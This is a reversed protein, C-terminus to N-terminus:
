PGLSYRKTVTETANHLVPQSHMAARITEIEAPTIGDATVSTMQDGNTRSYSSRKTLAIKGGPLDEAGYM